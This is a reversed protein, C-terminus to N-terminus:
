NQNYYYCKYSKMKKKEGGSFGQNLDRNLFDESINLMNLYKKIFILFELPNLEVKKLLKQKENYILRLFDFNTVGFIEIPYQFALFIGLKSREEPLLSNIEKGLFSINGNTIMYDPHGVLTKGLTSKGSGNPGMIIHVNNQEINLNFNKLIIKENISVNLNEIKLLTTNM